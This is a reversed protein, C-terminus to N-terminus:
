ISRGKNWLNLFYQTAEGSYYESTVLISFEHNYKLASETWNHSGMILYIGDVIIIKMHSTVGNSEDLKVPVSNNKLYSITDPYSKLTPDDVLVRVDVRRERAEVLSYLLQNVPDDYEKPDYKVVYIAIYISKNANEILQKVTEFYENDELLEIKTINSGHILMSYSNNLSIYKELLTQYKINLENYQKILEQNERYVNNIYFIGSFGILIILIVLTKASIRARSM